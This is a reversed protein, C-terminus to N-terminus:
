KKEFKALLKNVRKQQAASLKLTGAEKLADQADERPASEEDSKEAKESKKKPVCEGKEPDFEMNPPCQKEEQKKPKEPLAKEESSEEAKVEPTEESKQEPTEAAKEEEREEGRKEEEEEPKEEARTMEDLIFDMETVLRRIPGPLDRRVEMLSSVAERAKETASQQKETLDEAKVVEPTDPMNKEDKELDMKGGGEQDRKVILFRAKPVAPNDVFSIEHVKLDTVRKRPKQEAM